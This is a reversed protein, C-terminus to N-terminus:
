ATRLSRQPEPVQGKGLRPTRAEGRQTALEKENKGHGNEDM